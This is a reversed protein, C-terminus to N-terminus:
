IHCWELIDGNMGGWIRLSMGPEGPNGNSDGASIWHLLSGTHDAVELTQISQATRGDRRNNCNGDNCVLIVFYYSSQNFIPQRDGFLAFLFYFM